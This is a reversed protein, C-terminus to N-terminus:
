KLEGKILKGKLEGKILDLTWEIKDTKKVELIKVFNNPITARTQTKDQTINTLKSKIKNASYDCSIGKKNLKNKM